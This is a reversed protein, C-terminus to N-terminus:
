IPKRGGRSPPAAPLHDRPRVIRDFLGAVNQFVKIAESGVVPCSGHISYPDGQGDPTLTYFLVANTKEPRIRLGRCGGDAAPPPLGQSRPFQTEGGRTGNNLYWLVTALRNKHGKHYLDRWVLPEAEYARSDVHDYHPDYKEGRRYRVVNVAGELFSENSRLLSATRKRLGQLWPDEPDHIWVDSSTRGSHLSPDHVASRALGPHAVRILHDCEYHSLLGSVAFVAPAISLTELVVTANNPGDRLTRKFGVKVVPWVWQGGAQVIVIERV